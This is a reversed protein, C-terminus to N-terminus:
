TQECGARAGAVFIRSEGGRSRAELPVVEAWGGLPAGDCWECLRCRPAAGSSSLARSPDWIELLVCYCVYGRM